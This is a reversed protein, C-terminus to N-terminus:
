SQLRLHRARRHLPLPCKGPLKGGSRPVAQTVQTAAAAQRESSCFRFTLPFEQVPVRHEYSVCSQTVGTTNNESM